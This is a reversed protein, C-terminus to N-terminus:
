ERVQRFELIFPAGEEGRGCRDSGVWRGLGNPQPTCWRMWLASRELSSDQESSQNLKSDGVQKTLNGYAIKIAIDNEPHM